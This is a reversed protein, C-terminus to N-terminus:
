ALGLLTFHSCSRCVLPFDHAVADMYWLDWPLFAGPDEFRLHNGRYRISNWRRALDVYPIVKRVLRRHLLKLPRNRTCNLIWRRPISSCEAMIKDYRISLLLHDDDRRHLFVMSATSITTALLTLNWVHIRLLLASNYVWLDYYLHGSPWLLTLLLIAGREWVLFSPLIFQFVNPHYSSRRSYFTARFM